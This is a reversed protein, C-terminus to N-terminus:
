PELNPQPVSGGDIPTASPREPTAAADGPLPRPSTADLAIVISATGVVQGDIAAVLQWCGASTIRQEFLYWGGPLAPAPSDFRYISGPAMRSNFAADIRRGDSGGEAWMAVSAGPDADPDFRVIILWPNDIAYLSGPEVNFFAHPGGIEVWWGGHTTSESELCSAPTSRGGAAPAKPLSPLIALAVGALAVLGVAAGITRLRARRRMADRHMRSRLSGADLAVHPRYAERRLARRLADDLEDDM